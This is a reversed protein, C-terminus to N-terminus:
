HHVTYEEEMGRLFGVSDLFLKLQQILTQKRESPYKLWEIEQTFETRQVHQILLRVECLEQKSLFGARKEM